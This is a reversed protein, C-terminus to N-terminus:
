YEGPHGERGYIANFSLRVRKEHAQYGFLNQAHNGYATYDGWKAITLEAWISKYNAGVKVSDSICILGTTSDVEFDQNKLQGFSIYSLVLISM